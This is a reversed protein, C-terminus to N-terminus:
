GATLFLLLYATEQLSYAGGTSTEVVSAEDMAIQDGAVQHQPRGFAVGAFLVFLDSFIHPNKAHVSVDDKDIGIKCLLRYLLLVLVAVQVHKFSSESRCM